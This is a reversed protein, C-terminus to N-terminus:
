YRKIDYDPTAFSSVLDDEYRPSCFCTAGNIRGDRGRRNKHVFKTIFDSISTDYPCIGKSGSVVQEAWTLRKYECGCYPCLGDDPEETYVWKPTALSENLEKEEESAGIVTEQAPILHDPIKHNQESM